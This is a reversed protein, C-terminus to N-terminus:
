KFIFSGGLAGGGGFNVASPDQDVPVVFNQAQIPSPNQGFKRIAEQRGLIM